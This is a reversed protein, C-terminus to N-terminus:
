SAHADAKRYSKTIPRLADIAGASRLPGEILINRASGNPQQPVLMIRLANSLAPVFRLMGREDTLPATGKSVERFLSIRGHLERRPRGSRPVLRKNVPNTVWYTERGAQRRMGVEENRWVRIALPKIM